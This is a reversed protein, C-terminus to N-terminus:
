ITNDREEKIIKQMTQKTNALDFALNRVDAKALELDLRLQAITARLTENESELHTVRRDSRELANTLSKVAVESGTAVVSDKDVRLRLLPIIAGIGSGGLIVGVLAIILDGTTLNM